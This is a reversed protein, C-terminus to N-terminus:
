NIKEVLRIVTISIIGNFFFQHGCRLATVTSYRVREIRVYTRAMSLDSTLKSFFFLFLVFLFNHM